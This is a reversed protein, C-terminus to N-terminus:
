AKGLLVYASPDHVVNWAIDEFPFHAEKKAGERGVVPICSHHRLRSGGDQVM